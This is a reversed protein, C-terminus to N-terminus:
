VVDLAYVVFGAVKTAASLRLNLAQGAACALVPAIGTGVGWVGLAGLDVPGSIGVANTLWTVTNAGTSVLSFGLVVIRLSSVPAVVIANDAAASTNVAVFTPSLQPVDFLRSPM